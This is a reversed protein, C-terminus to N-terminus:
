GINFNAVHTRVEGGRKQYDILRQGPGISGELVRLDRKSEGKSHGKPHGRSDRKSDGKFGGKFNGKFDGM